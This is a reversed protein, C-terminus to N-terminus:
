EYTKNGDGAADISLCFLNVTNLKELIFTNDIERQFHFYLVQKSFFLFLPIDGSGDRHIELVPRGDRFLYFNRYTSIEAPFITIHGAEAQIKM